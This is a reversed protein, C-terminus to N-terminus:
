SGVTIKSVAMNDINTEGLKMDRAIALYRVKEINDVFLHAAYADAAVQDRSLILLDPRKMKGPGKPGNTLMIRTADIITWNPKIFSSFDAICQHLDNRHWFLDSSCM